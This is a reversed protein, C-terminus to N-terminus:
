LWVALNIDQNWHFCNSLCADCYSIRNTNIAIIIDDCHRPIQKLTWNWGYCVSADKVRLRFLSQRGTLCPRPSTTSHSTQPSLTYKSLPPAPTSNRCLECLRWSYNIQQTSEQKKGRKGHFFFFSPLHQMPSLNRLGPDWQGKLLPETSLATNGPDKISVCLSQSLGWQIHERKLLLKLLSARVAGLYFFLALSFPLSSPLPDGLPDQVLFLPTRSWFVVNQPRSPTLTQTQLPIPMLEAPKPGVLSDQLGSAGCLLVFSFQILLTSLVMSKPIFGAFCTM